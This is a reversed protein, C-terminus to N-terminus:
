AAYIAGDVASRLRCGTTSAGGSWCGATTLEQAITPLRPVRDCMPATRGVAESALTARDVAKSM